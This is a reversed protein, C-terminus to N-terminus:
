KRLQKEFLNAFANVVGVLKDGGKDAIKNIVEQSIPIEQGTQASAFTIGAQIGLAVLKDAGENEAKKFAENQGIKDMLDAFENEKEERCADVNKVKTVLFNFIKM